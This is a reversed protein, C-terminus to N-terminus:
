RAGSIYDMKMKVFTGLIVLFSLLIILWGIIPILWLIGVAFSGVLATQWNLMIEESKKFYKWVLGGFFVALFSCSFIILAVYSLLGIIGLPLGILTICLLVSVIPIIILALFGRGMNRWKDEISKAVIDTSMRGFVWQLVLAVVFLSILRMIFGASFFGIFNKDRGGKSYKSESFTVAGSIQANSHIEAEKKSSYGLTGNIKANEGIVVQEADISLNGVTGNILVESAFIKVEGNVIGSIEVRGGAIIVNGGVIAGSIISVDGGALFADDGISGIVKVNGGAARLDDTVDGSVMVSGGAAAVDGSISGDVLISGGAGFLDGLLNGSMIVTSAGFYADDALARGKEIAVNEGFSLIPAAFANPVAVFIASFSVAFISLIVFIGPTIKKM